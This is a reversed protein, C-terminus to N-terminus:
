QFLVPYSAQFFFFVRLLNQRLVEGERQRREEVGRHLEWLGAQIFAQRSDQNGGSTGNQGLLDKMGRERKRWEDRQKRGQRKEGELWM